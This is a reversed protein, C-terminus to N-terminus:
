KATGPIVAAQFDEIGPSGGRRLGFQDDFKKDVRLPRSKDSKDKSKSLERETMSCSRVKDVFSAPVQCEVIKDDTHGQAQRTKLFDEARGRDGFNVFLMGDGEVRIGGDPTPFM